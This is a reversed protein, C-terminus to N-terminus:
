LLGEDCFSFFGDEPGSIILHDLLRLDLLEGGQKIKNTLERDGQSPKKNGSPHNHALIIGHANIQLAITFVMKPDIVKGSTGGMGLKVFGIFENARNLLMLVAEEAYEITDADMIKRIVRAADESGSVKEHDIKKSSKKKLSVKFETLQM